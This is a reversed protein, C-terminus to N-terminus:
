RIACVRMSLYVLGFLLVVLLLEANSRPRATAAAAGTDNGWAKPFRSPTAGKEQESAFWNRSLL